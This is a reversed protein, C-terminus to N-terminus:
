VALLRTAFSRQSLRESACRLGIDVKGLGSPAKALGTADGRWGGRYCRGRGESAAKDDPRKTLRRM